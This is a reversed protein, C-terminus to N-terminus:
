TRPRPPWPVCTTSRFDLPRPMIPWRSLKDYTASDNVRQQESRSDGLRASPVPPLEGPPPDSRLETSYLSGLRILLNAHEDRGVFLRSLLNRRTYAVADEVWQVFGASREAVLGGRDGGHLRIVPAVVLDGSRASSRADTTAPLRQTSSASARRPLRATPPPGAETTGSAVHRLGGVPDRRDRAELTSPGRPTAALRGASTQRAWTVSSRTPTPAGPAITLAPCILSTAPLPDVRGAVFVGIDEDEGVHPAPTSACRSGPSPLARAPDTERAPVLRGGGSGTGFDVPGRQTGDGGRGVGDGRGYV